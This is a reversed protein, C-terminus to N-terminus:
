LKSQVKASRGVREIAAPEVEQLRLKGNLATLM